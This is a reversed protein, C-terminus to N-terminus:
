QPLRDVWGLSPGFFHQGNRCFSVRDTNSSAISLSRWGAHSQAGMVTVAACCVLNLVAILTFFLDHVVFAGYAVATANAPRALAGPRSMYGEGGRNKAMPGPPLNMYINFASPSLM